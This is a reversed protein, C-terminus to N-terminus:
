VTPRSPRRRPDREYVDRRGELIKNMAFNLVRDSIWERGAVKGVLDQFNITVQSNTPARLTTFTTWFPTSDFRNVVNKAIIAFPTPLQGIAQDPFANDFIGSYKPAENKVWSFDASWRKSAAVLEHYDIVATLYMRAFLMMFLLPMLLM